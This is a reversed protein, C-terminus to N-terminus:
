RNRAFWGHFCKPVPGPLNSFECRGLETMTKADLVLLGVRNEEGKGWVMSALIVGDDESESEPSAVFIPESPYCNNECWTLKTKARVDVKILTGTEETKDFSNAYFFRYELGLFKEYNIRPLECNVDCILEPECFISGCKPIKFYNAKSDKLKLPLVFRMPKANFMEAYSDNSMKKLNEIYMKNVVEVDNICCIDVVVHNEKEFQNIIHFYFFTSTQYTQLIKGSKRSILHIQTSTNPFSILSFAMPEDTFKSEIFRKVSVTLPHEVVIFFNETIGFSHMYSPHFKWRTPIKAVINADEFKKEGKPFCIINYSPGFKDVSIGLNFVTGDNMVFPHASHNVFGYSEYMDVRSLTELSEPDIKHIVPYETFAFYEDDFPYISVLANDSSGPEFITLM